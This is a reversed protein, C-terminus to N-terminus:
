ATSPRERGRIVLVNAVGRARAQPAATATRGALPQSPRVVRLRPTCTPHRLEAVPVLRDAPATAATCPTSGVAAPADRWTGRQDSPVATLRVGLNAALPIFFVLTALVVARM